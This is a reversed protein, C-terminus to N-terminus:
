PSTIAFYAPGDIKIDNKTAPSAVNIAPLTAQLRCILQNSSRRSRTIIIIVM